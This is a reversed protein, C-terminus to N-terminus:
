RSLDRYKGNGLVEVINEKIYSRETEGQWQAEISDIAEKDNKAEFEYDFDPAECHSKIYCWYQKKM